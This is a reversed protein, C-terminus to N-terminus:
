AKIAEAALFSTALVFLEFDHERTTGDSRMAVRV